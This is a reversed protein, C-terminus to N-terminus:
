KPWVSGWDLCLCARQGLLAVKIFESCCMYTQSQPGLCQAKDSTGASPLRSRGATELSHVRNPKILLMDGAEVVYEDRELKVRMAGERVLIIEYCRHMHMPFSLCEGEEVTFYDASIEHKLEYFFEKM